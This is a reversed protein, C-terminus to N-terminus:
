GEDEAIGVLDFIFARVAAQDEETLGKAPQDAMGAFFLAQGFPDDSPLPRESAELWRQRILETVSVLDNSM